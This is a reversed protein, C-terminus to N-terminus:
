RSGTWFSESTEGGGGLVERGPELVGVLTAVDSQIQRLLNWAVLSCLLGVFTITSVQALYTINTTLLLLAVFPTSIAVGFYWGSRQQLAILQTVDESAPRGVVVLVPLFARLSLWNTVFFVQVATILGWLFQSPIFHAYLNRPAQKGLSEIEVHIWWAFVIGSVFWLVATMWSVYDGIWLARTRAPGLEDRGEAFQRGGVQRRVAQVVPWCIMLGVVVGIPYIVGNVVPMMRSWFIPLVEQLALEKEFVAKINFYINFGSFAGNALVAVAILALLPWRRAWATGREELTARSPRFLRQARPQLCLELQRAFAGATAPREAPDPALCSLLVEKM